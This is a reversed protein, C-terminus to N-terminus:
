RIQEDTTYVHRYIQVLGYEVLVLGSVLTFPNSLVAGVAFSIPYFSWSTCFHRSVYLEGNSDPYDPEISWVHRAVDFPAM